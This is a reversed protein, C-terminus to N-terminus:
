EVLHIFNRECEKFGAVIAAEPNEPFKDNQIVFNHLHDRLYDSCVSGGHGDFM